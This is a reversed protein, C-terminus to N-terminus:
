IRHEMSSEGTKANIDLVPGADVVTYETNFLTFCPLEERMVLDPDPIFVTQFNLSTESEFSAYVNNIKVMSPVFINDTRCILGPLTYWNNHM